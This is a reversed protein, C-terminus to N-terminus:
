VNYQRMLEWPYHDSSSGHDKKVGVRILTILIIVGTPGVLVKTVIIVIRIGASRPLPSQESTEQKNM